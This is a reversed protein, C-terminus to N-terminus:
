KYEILRVAKVANPYMGMGNKYIKADAICCEEGPQPQHIVKNCGIYMVVHDMDGDRDHDKFILDGPKLDFWSVPRGYNAQLHANHPLYVGFKAYVLMTFGSCDTGDELSKGGYVYPVGLYQSAYDIIEKHVGETAMPHSWLVDELTVFSKTTGDLRPSGKEVLIIQVAEMRRSCAETGSLAGNTGGYAWGLWGLSQIHTRYYIDYHEALEGTLYIRIAELRKSQGETGALDGNGRTSMWGYSQCHVSYHIGGTLNTDIDIKLAEMRKAEGNTGSSQGSSVYPLWGYSQVHTTYKLNAYPAEGKKVLKIQIGELRKAEGTTGCEADNKVWDSWGYTQRHVRYMVDYENALQGTLRIKISELRKAEGSTGSMEYNSVYDMWGYTQCHVSYEIGGEIHSEIRIKIGELRKAEGSTGSMEGNSVDDQWGYSQVHTTYYISPTISNSTEDAATGSNTATTAETAYVKNVPMVYLTGVVLSFAVAITLIKRKIERINM